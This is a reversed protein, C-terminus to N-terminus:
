APGYAEAVYTVGKRNTSFRENRHAVVFGDQTPRILLNSEHGLLTIFIELVGIQVRRQIAGDPVRFDASEELRRSDPHVLELVINLTDSPLDEIPVAIVQNPSRVDRSKVVPNRAVMSKVLMVFGLQHWGRFHALPVEAGQFRARHETAPSTRFVNGDVHYSTHSGKLLGGADFYLGKGQLVFWALKRRAGDVPEATCLTVRM